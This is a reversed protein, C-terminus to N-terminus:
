TGLSKVDKGIADIAAQTSAALDTVSKSVTGIAAELNEGQKVRAAVETKQAASLNNFATQTATSLNAVETGLDTVSKSSALNSTANTIATQVQSPTASAPLAALATNVIDQVQKTTLGPNAAMTSNILM